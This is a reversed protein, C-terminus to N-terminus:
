SVLPILEGRNINMLACQHAYMVVEVNSGVNVGRVFYSTQASNIYALTPTANTLTSEIFFDLLTISILELV